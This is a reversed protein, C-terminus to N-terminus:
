ARRRMRVQYVEGAETKFFGANKLIFLTEQLLRIVGTLQLACPLPMCLLASLSAAPM